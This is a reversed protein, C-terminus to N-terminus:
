AGDRVDEEAEVGLDDDRMIFLGFCFTWTSCLLWPLLIGFLVWDPLGAIQAFDADTRAGIWGQQVLWSDDTHRYGFLYCYGVTWCLAAAWVILTLVAERRANRLLTRAAEPDSM